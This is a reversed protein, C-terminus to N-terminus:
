RPLAAEVIRDISEGGHVVAYIASLLPMQALLESFRQEIFVVALRVADVGEVTQELAVMEALATTAKEGKGLRAGYVKNRGSIGTVELDGAGPLGLATWPDTGAASLLMRLEALAQAFIASKLNHYPQEGVESLGDAVGLAIAFVNKMAACIELGDRDSTSAVRYTKTKALSAWASAGGEVGFITATPQGYAVENAKCPGGIAVVPKFPTGGARLQAEVTQPLLQITGQEDPFFGKSTILIGQVDQLYPAALRAIDAVGVSSVAIIAVEVGALAQELEGHYFSAVGDPVKVNTRPHPSGAKISDILHDDLFTGWLRVDHGAQLM